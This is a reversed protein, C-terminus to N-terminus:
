RDCRDTPKLNLQWLIASRDQGSLEVECFCSVNYSQFLLPSMKMAVENKETREARKENVPRSIRDRVPIALSLGGCRDVDTVEEFETLSLKIWDHTVHRALEFNETVSFQCHSKLRYKRFHFLSLPLM